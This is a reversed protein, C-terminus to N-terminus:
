DKIEVGGMVAYGRVILQKGSRVASPSRKDVCAGMLSTVDITVDWDRPVHIEIGGMMAFVDVTVSDGSLTASSLDLKAGGLVANLDAGEFVSTPRMESGSMIAFTRIYSDGDVQPPRPRTLGRWIVSTGMVVILTPLFVQWFNVRLWHQQDAYAWVGALILVVGWLGKRQQLLFAVGLLVLAVPWFLRLVYSADTWGLNGALMNLGFGIILLGIILGGLATRPRHQLDNRPSQPEM